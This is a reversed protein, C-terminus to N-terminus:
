DPPSGDGGAQQFRHVLGRYDVAVRADALDHTVAAAHGTSISKSLKVLPELSLVQEFWNLEGSADIAIGPKSLQWEYAEPMRGVDVGIDAKAVEHFKRRAQSESPMLSGACAPVPYQRGRYDRASCAALCTLHTNSASISGAPHRGRGVTGALTCVVKVAGLRRRSLLM